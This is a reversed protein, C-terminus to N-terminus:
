MAAREPRCRIERPTWSVFLASMLTSTCTAITKASSPSTARRQPRMGASYRYTSSTRSLAGPQKPCRIAPSRIAKPHHFPQGSVKLYAFLMALYSGWSQIVDPKFENILRANVDPPDLLLKQRDIDFGRPLLANQDYFSEMAYDSSRAQSILTLRYGLSRGILPTFAARAREGYAVDLFLARHDLYLTCPKGTTGSTRRAVYRSLPFETSVFRTPDRQIERRELLPLKALDDASQFDAPGLGLQDMAERYYPVYRYAYAVMQRVRRDRDAEIRALPRFPYSSQGRRHYAMYATASLRSLLSAM